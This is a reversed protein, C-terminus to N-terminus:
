AAMRRHIAKGLAHAVIDRAEVYSLPLASLQELAGLSTEIVIPDIQGLPLSANIYAEFAALSSILPHDKQELAIERARAFHASTADLTEPLSARLQGCSARLDQLALRIPSKAAEEEADTLKTPRDSAREGARRRAGHYDAPNKRRRCPGVFVNCDVFPRPTEIVMQMRQLVAAPSLPKALFEDAGADRGALVTAKTIGSTILVVPMRRLRDEPVRRLSRLFELADSGPLDAQTEWSLLMVDFNRDMLHGQAVSYDRATSLNTINLNRLIESVLNRNFANHDLVLVSLSKPKLPRPKRADQM